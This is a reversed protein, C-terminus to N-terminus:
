RRKKLLFVKEGKNRELFNLINNMAGPLNFKPHNWLWFPITFINNDGLVATKLSRLCVMSIESVANERKSQQPLGVEGM